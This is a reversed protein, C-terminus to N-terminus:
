RNDEPERRPLEGRDELASRLMGIERVGDDPRRRARAAADLRM